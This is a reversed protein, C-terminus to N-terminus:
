SFVMSATQKAKEVKPGFSRNEYFKQNYETQGAAASFSQQQEHLTYKTKNHIHSHTFDSQNPKLGSENHAL